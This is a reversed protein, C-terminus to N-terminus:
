PITRQRGADLIAVRCTPDESLPAAIVAGVSGGVLAIFDVIASMDVGKAEHGTATPAM